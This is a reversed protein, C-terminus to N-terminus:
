LCITTDTLYKNATEVCNEVVGEHGACISCWTAICFPIHTAASKCVADRQGAEKVLNGVFMEIGKRTDCGCHEWAGNNVPISNQQTEAAGASFLIGAPVIMRFFAAAKM